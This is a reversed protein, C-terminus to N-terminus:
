NPCHNIVYNYFLIYIYLMTINFDSKVDPHLGKFDTSKIWKKTSKAIKDSRKFMDIWSHGRIVSILTNYNPNNNAIENLANNWLIIGVDYYDMNDNMGHVFGSLFNERNRAGTFYKRLRETIESKNGTLFYNKILYSEICPLEWHVNYINNPDAEMKKNSVDITNHPTFDKDKLNVILKYENSLLSLDRIEKIKRKEFIKLIPYIEELKTIFGNPGIEDSGEVILLYKSKDIINIYSFKIDILHPSKYYMEVHVLENITDCDFYYSMIVVNDQNIFMYKINVCNNDINNNIIKLLNNELLYLM